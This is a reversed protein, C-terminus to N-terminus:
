FLSRCHRRPKLEVRRQLEFFLIQCFPAFSSDTPVIRFSPINKMKPVVFKGYAVKVIGINFQFQALRGMKAEKVLLFCRKENEERLPLQVFSILFRRRKVSTPASKGSAWREVLCFDTAHRRLSLTRSKEARHHHNCVILFSIPQDVSSSIQSSSRQEELNFKLWLSWLDSLCLSRSSTGALSTELRLSSFDPFSLRM